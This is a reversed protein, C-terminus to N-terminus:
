EADGGIWVWVAADRGKGPEMTLRIAGAALLRDKAANIEWAKKNRNFLESVETQTMRQRVRLAEGIMDDMTFGTRGGFIIRASHEAYDWNVGMAATAWRPVKHVSQSRSDTFPVLDGPRDHLRLQPLASAKLM